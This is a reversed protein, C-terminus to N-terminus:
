HQANRQQRYEQSAGPCVTDAREEDAHRTMIQPPGDRRM